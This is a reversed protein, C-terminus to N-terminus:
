SKLLEKTVKGGIPRQEWPDAHVGRVGARCFEPAAAMEEANLPDGEMAIAVGPGLAGFGCAEGFAECLFGEAVVGFSHM